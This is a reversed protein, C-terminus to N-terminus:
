SASTKSLAPQAAQYDRDFTASVAAIVDPANGADLELSLERNHLLSATTLNHSGIILSTHDALLVKQHMYLAGASSDAPFLHVSCGSASVEDFSNDLAAFAMPKCLTIRRALLSLLMSAAKPLRM